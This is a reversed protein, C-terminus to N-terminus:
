NIINIIVINNAVSQGPNRLTDKVWFTAQDEELVM